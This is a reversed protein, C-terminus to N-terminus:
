MTGLNELLRQYGSKRCGESKYTSSLLRLCFYLLQRFYSHLGLCFLSKKLISNIRGALSIPLSGWRQVDSKAKDLAPKLNLKLLDGYKRTVTVGLYTFNDCSM